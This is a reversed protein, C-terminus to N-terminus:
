EYVYVIYFMSTAKTVDGAPKQLVMTFGLTSGSTMVM